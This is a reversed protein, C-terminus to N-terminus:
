INISTTTKRPRYIRLNKTIRITNAMHKTISNRHTPFSSSLQLTMMFNKDKFISAADPDFEFDDDSDDLGAPVGRFVAM